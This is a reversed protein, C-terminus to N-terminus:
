RAQCWRDQPCVPRRALTARLMTADDYRTVCDIRQAPLDAFQEVACLRQSRYGATTRPLTPRGRRASNWRGPFNASSSRAAGEPEFRAWVWFPAERGSVRGPWHRSRTIGAGFRISLVTVPWPRRQARNPVPAPEGPPPPSGSFGRRDRAGCELPDRRQLAWTGKSSAAPRPAPRLGLRRTQERRKLVLPWLPEIPLDAEADSLVERVRTGFSAFLSEDKVNLDEFLLDGTCQDYELGRLDALRRRPKNEAQSHVVVQPPRQRRHLEPRHWAPTPRTNRRRLEQGSGRPPLTRAPPRHGGAPGDPRHLGARHPRPSDPLRTSRQSGGVRKGVSGARADDRPTMTGPSGSARAQRGHGPGGRGPPVALLAGDESPARLRHTSMLSM